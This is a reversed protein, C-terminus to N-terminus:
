MVSKRKNFLEGRRKRGVIIEEIFKIMRYFVAGCYRYLIDSSEEKLYFRAECIGTNESEVKRLYVRNYNVLYVCEYIVSMVGYVVVVFFEDNVNKLIMEVIM